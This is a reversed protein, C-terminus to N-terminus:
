RKSFARLQGTVYDIGQSNQHRSFTVENETRTGILTSIETEIGQDAQAHWLIRQQKHKAENELLGKMASQTAAAAFLDGDPSYSEFTVMNHHPDELKADGLRYVRKYNAENDFLKKSVARLDWSRFRDFPVAPRLQQELYHRWADVRQLSSDRPVRLELLDPANWRAMLVYRYEKREYVRLIRNPGDIIIEGTAEERTEHGYFKAAWDLPKRRGWQRVDAVVFGDKKLKYTPSHSARAGLLAMRVHELTLQQAVDRAPTRLYFIHQPGNEEAERLLDRLREIDISHSRFADRLNAEVLDEKSSASVKVDKNGTAGRLVGKIQEATCHEKILVLMEDFEAM